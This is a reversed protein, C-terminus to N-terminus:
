KFSSSVIRWGSAEEKTIVVFEKGAAYGSVGYSGDDLRRIVCEDSSPMKFLGVDYRKKMWVLAAGHAQKEKSMEEKPAGEPIPSMGNNTAFQHPIVVAFLIFIVVLIIIAALCGNIKLPQRKPTEVMGTFSSTVMAKHRMQDMEMKYRTPAGCHSCAEARYSIEKGCDECAVLSSMDQSPIPPALPPAKPVPAAIIFSEGCECEAERGAASDEVHYERGCKPCTLKM